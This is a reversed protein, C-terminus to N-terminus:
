ALGMARLGEVLTEYRGPEAQLVVWFPRPALDERVDELVRWLTAVEEPPADQLLQDAELVLFVGGEPLDSLCDRLGDWTGGFYSPFGAAVAWEDMLGQRTRMRSGHLWGQGTRNGLAARLAGTSGCWPRILPGGPDMPLTPQTM